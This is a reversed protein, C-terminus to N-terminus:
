SDSFLEGKLAKYFLLLFLFIYASLLLILRLIFPVELNIIGMTVTLLYAFILFFLYM